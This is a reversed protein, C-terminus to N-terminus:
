VMHEVFWFGVGLIVYLALLQLGELWNSEGDISIFVAALGSALLAVLEFTNFTLTFDQGILAGLIILVPTVFLAVQLASGISISLSLDMKNEAAVTVAVLHEAINGVLPVLMVGVFLESMGWAKSAPEIEGVLIESVVIIGLTSIALIGLAKPLSMTATDHGHETEVEQPSTDRLSYALYAVYVVLMVIAVGMSLRDLDTKQIQGEESHGFAFLGPVAIAFVALILMTANVGAARADFKQTGNKLGGVFLSLGLVVLINGIISGAISAQVVSILGERLAAFAIILEAANGLTANLLGGVKPGTYVAVEETAHGLVAALPIMALGALAFMLGPSGKDLYNMVIVVPVLVLLINLYKM